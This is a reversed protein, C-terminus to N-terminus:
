QPLELILNEADTDTVRKQACELLCFVNYQGFVQWSSFEVKTVSYALFVLPNLLVPVQRESM